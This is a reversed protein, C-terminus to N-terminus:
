PIQVAPSGVMKAMWNCNTEINWSGATKHAIQHGQGPPVEWGAGSAVFFKSCTGSACSTYGLNTTAGLQARAGALNPLGTLYAADMDGTFARIKTGPVRTYIIGSTSNSVQCPIDYPAPPTRASGTPSVATRGFGIYYAAKTYASLWTEALRSVQSGQSWGSLAVGEAVAAKGWGAGLGAAKTASDAIIRRIASNANSHDFIAKADDYTGDNASSCNLVDGTSNAGSPSAVGATGGTCGCSYSGGSQYEVEAAVFGRKAMAQAVDNTFGGFKGNTGQTAILIPANPNGSTGLKPLYYRIRYSSPTGPIGALKAATYTTSQQVSIQYAAAANAAGALCFVAAALTLRMSTM